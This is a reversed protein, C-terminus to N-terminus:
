STASLPLSRLSALWLVSQCHPSRSRIWGACAWAELRPTRGPIQHALPSSILLLPSSDLQAQTAAWRQYLFARQQGYLEKLRALRGRLGGKRGHAFVRDILGGILNCYGTHVSCFVRARQCPTCSVVDREHAPVARDVGQRVNRLQEAEEKLKSDHELWSADVRGRLHAVLSGTSCSGPLSESKGGSAVYACTAGRERQLRHIIQLLAKGAQEDLGRTLLTAREWSLCRM